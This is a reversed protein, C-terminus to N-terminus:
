LWDPHPLGAEVFSPAWKGLIADGYSRSERCASARRVCVTDKYSTIKHYDMGNGKAVKQEKIVWGPGANYGMLAAWYAQYGPEFLKTMQHNLDSMLVASCRISWDQRFTLRKIGGDSRPAGYWTCKGNRILGAATKTTFQKYGDAYISSVNPRCGSEQRSQAVLPVTMKDTGFSELSADREAKWNDFCRALTSQTPRVLRPAPEKSTEVPAASPPAIGVSGHFLPEPDHYLPESDHYMPEPEVKPAPPGYTEAEKAAPQGGSGLSRTTLEGAAFFAVLALAVVAVAIVLGKM